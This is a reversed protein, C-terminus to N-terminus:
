ESENTFEEKEKTVIDVKESVVAFLIALYTPVTLLALYPFLVTTLAMASVFGGFVLPRIKVDYHDNLVFVILKNSKENIVPTKDLIIM